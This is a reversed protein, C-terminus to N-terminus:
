RSSSVTCWTIQSPQDHPTMTRSRPRSYACCRPRAVGARGSASPNPANASSSASRWDADAYRASSSQHTECNVGTGAGSSRGVSRGRGACRLVADTPVGEAGPTQGLVQAWCCGDPNVELIARAALLAEDTAAM